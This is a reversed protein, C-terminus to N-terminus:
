ASFIGVYEFLDGTEWANTFSHNRAADDHMM